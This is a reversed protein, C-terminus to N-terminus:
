KANLVESLKVKSFGNYAKDNLERDITLVKIQSNLRIFKDREKKDLVFVCTAIVDAIVLKKAIVSVSILDKKGIIHANDYSGHYQNYDGSTAISEDKLKVSTYIKNEDRPDQISADEFYDGFVRLDGRANIYGSEIGHEEAREVLRDVIYGKAISGLDLMTDPHNLSILKGSIVVDKYSCSLKTLPLNNKRELFNKGLTIDYLGNTLKSYELALRLVYLLDDSVTMSQKKNLKSLESDKDYFNFIKVLRKGEHYLEDALDEAVAGAINNFMFDINGNM